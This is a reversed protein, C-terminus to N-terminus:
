RERDDLRYRDAARLVNALATATAPELAIVVRLEGDDVYTNVAVAGGIERARMWAAFATGVETRIARAESSEGDYQDPM